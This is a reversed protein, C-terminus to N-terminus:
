TKSSGKRQPPHVQIIMREQPTCDKTQQGHYKMHKTCLNTEAVAKIAAEDLKSWLDKGM